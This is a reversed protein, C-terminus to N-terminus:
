RWNSIRRERIENSNTAATAFVASNILLRSPSKSRFSVRWQRESSYVVCGTPEILRLVPDSQSLLFSRCHCPPRSLHRAAPLCAHIPRPDRALASEASFPFIRSAASRVALYNNTPKSRRPSPSGRWPFVIGGPGPLRNWNAFSGRGLVNRRTGNLMSLAEPAVSRDRRGGGRRGEAKEREDIKIPLIGSIGPGRHEGGARWGGFRRSISIWDPGVTGFANQGPSEGPNRPRTEREKWAITKSACYRFTYWLCATETKRIRKVAAVHEHPTPTPTPPPPLITRDYRVSDTFCRRLNTVDNVFPSVFIVFIM